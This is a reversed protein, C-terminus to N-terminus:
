VRRRRCPVAQICRVLLRRGLGLKWGLGIKRRLGVNWGIVAVNPQVGFYEDDLTITGSDKGAATKLTVDAM